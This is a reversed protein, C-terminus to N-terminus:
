RGLHQEGHRPEMLFINKEIVLQRGLKITEQFSPDRHEFHPLLVQLSGPLSSAWTLSRLGAAHTRFLPTRM